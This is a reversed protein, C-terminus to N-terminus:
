AGRDADGLRLQQHADRPFLEYMEAAKKLLSNQVKIYRSFEEAARINHARMAEVLNDLYDRAKRYADDLEAIVAELEKASQNGIDDLHQSVATVIRDEPSM